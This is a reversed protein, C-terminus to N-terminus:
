SITLTSSLIINSENKVKTKLETTPPNRDSLILLLFGSTTPDPLHFKFIEKKFLPFTKSKLFLNKYKPSIIQIRSFVISNKGSYIQIGRTAISSIM